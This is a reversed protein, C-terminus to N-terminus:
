TPLVDLEDQLTEVQEWVLQAVDDKWYTRSQNFAESPILLRFLRMTSRKIFESGRAYKQIERGGLLCFPKQETTTNQKFNMSLFVLRM